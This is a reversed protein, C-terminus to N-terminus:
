GEDGCRESSPGELVAALAEALAQWDGPHTYPVDPEFHAQLGKALDRVRQERNPHNAKNRRAFSTWRRYAIPAVVDGAWWSAGEARLREVARALEAEVGERPM